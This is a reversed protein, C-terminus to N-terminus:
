RKQSVKKAKGARAPKAEVTAVPEPQPVTAVPQQPAVQPVPTDPTVPAEPPQPITLNVNYNIFPRYGLQTKPTGDENTDPTGDEKRVPVVVEIGLAAIGPQLQRIQLKDPQVEVYEQNDLLFVIKM